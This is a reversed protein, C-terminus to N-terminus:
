QLRRVRALKCLEQAFDGYKAAKAVELRRSLLKESRVDGRQVEAIVANRKSAKRKVVSEVVSEIRYVVLSTLSLVLTVAVSDNFGREDTSDRQVEELANTLAAGGNSCLDRYV